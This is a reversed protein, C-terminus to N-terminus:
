RRPTLPNLAAGAPRGRWGSIGPQTPQLEAARAAFAPALLCVSLVLRKWM